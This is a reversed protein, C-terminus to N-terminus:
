IVRKLCGRSIELRINSVGREWLVCCPKGILDGPKWVEAERDGPWSTRLGTCWGTFPRSQLCEGREYPNHTEAFAGCEEKMAHKCSGCHMVCMCVCVCWGDELSHESM